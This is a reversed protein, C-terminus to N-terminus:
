DGSRLVVVDDLTLEADVRGAGRPVALGSQQTTVSATLLHSVARELGAFASEAAAAEPSTADLGLLGLERIVAGAALQDEVAFRLAGQDRVAGAAIVAVVIRTGLREQLAIVWAAVARASTVQAGVVWGVSHPAAPEPSGADQLADVWIVLDADAGVADAGAAGWDFRIQYRSQEQSM